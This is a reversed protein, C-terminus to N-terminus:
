EIGYQRVILLLWIDYNYCVIYLVLGVIRNIPNEEMVFYQQMSRTHQIIYNYELVIHM